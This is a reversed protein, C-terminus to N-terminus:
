SIDRESGLIISEFHIQLATAHGINKLGWDAFNIALDNNGIFKHTKAILLALRLDSPAGLSKLKNSKEKIEELTISILPEPFGRFQDLYKMGNTIFLDYMKEITQIASKEDDGYDFWVEKKHGLIRQVWSPIGVLRKRFECDYTTIRNFDPRENTLTPLFDLHVGIEMICSGGYKNAQIVLTFIFHEESYKRFHHDIGLFGLENLKPKLHVKLLKRFDLTLM